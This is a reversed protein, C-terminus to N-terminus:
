GTPSTVRVTIRKLGQDASVPATPDAASVWQVTVARKWGTYGPIPTGDAATANDQWTNFDDVDTFTARTAGAEPGLLPASVLPDAYRMQRVESLLPRALATARAQESLATRGRGAAAVASLGAVVALSILFVCVVAEALSFAPRSRM